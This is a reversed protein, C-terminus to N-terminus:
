TGLAVYNTRKVSDTSKSASKTCRHVRDTNNKRRSSAAEEYLGNEIQSWYSTSSCNTHEAIPTVRALSTLLTALEIEKATWTGAVIALKQETAAESLIPSPLLRM